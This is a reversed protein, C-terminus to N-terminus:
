AGSEESGGLAEHLAILVRLEGHDKTGRFREVVAFVRARAESAVLSAATLDELATRLADREQVAQLLEPLANRMECVLAVNTEIEEFSADWERDIAIPGVQVPFAAAQEEDSFDVDLEEREITWPAPAARRDLDRLRERRESTGGGVPQELAPEAITAPKSEIADGVTVRHEKANEVKHFRPEHEPHRALWRAFAKVMEEGLAIEDEGSVNELWDDAAEGVDVGADERIRELLWGANRPVYSKVDVARAQGVWVTITDGPEAGDNVAEEIAEAIAEEVTQHEGRFNDADSRAWCYTPRAETSEAKTTEM